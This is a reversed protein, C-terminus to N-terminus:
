LEIAYRRRYPWARWHTPQVNIRKNTEAAIWGDLVRRCPFTVVHPGDKEIVALEVDAAYRVTSIPKWEM